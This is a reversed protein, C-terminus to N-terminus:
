GNDLDVAIGIVDGSSRGGLTLGTYAGNTYIAGSVFVESGTTANNGMGTYTSATTGIGSGYNGGSANTFTVEFYWKGSTKGASSPACAGQNPSSGGTGTAVLNGGSLTVSAITTPDWTTSMEYEGIKM